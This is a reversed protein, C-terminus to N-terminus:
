ADPAIMVITVSGHPDVSLPQTPGPVMMITSNVDVHYSAKKLADVLVAQMPFSKAPQGVAHVVVSKGPPCSAVVQRILDETLRFPQKGYNHVPGMHGSNNGFNNYEDGPMEDGRQKSCFLLLTM